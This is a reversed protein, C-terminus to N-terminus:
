KRMSRKYGNSQEWNYIFKFIIIPTIVFFVFVHIYGIIPKEIILNGFDIFVNFKQIPACIGLM